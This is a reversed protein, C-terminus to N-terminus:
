SEELPHTALPTVEAEIWPFCPLSAIAAHLADADPVSWVGVNRIAGPVRWISRITGAARLERGRRLEADLLEARADAGLDVPLRVHIQVLFEM